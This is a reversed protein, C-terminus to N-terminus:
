SRRCGASVNRALVRGGSRSRSGTLKQFPTQRRRAATMAIRSQRLYRASGAGRNPMSAWPEAAPLAGGKQLLEVSQGDPSKIFAMHGDRPPATSSWAPRACARAPRTSTTSRSPWTASSAGADRVARAPGLQPDARDGRTVTPAPAWSSWPSAPQANETRRTERLGLKHVFFDLAADLDRVRLMTHLYRM